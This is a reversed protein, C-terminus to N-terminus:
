GRRRPARARRDNGDALLTRFAPSSFSTITLACPPLTAAIVLAASSHRARCPSSATVSVKARSPRGGSRTSAPRPRARRAHRASRSPASAANGARARRCPLAVSKGDACAPAQRASRRPQAGVTRDAEAPEGAVQIAVARGAVGGRRRCLEAGGDGRMLAPGERLQQRVDGGGVNTRQKGSPHSCRHARRRYISADCPGSEGRSRLGPM